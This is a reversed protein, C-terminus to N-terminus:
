RRRAWNPITMKGLKIEMKLQVMEPIGILLASQFAAMPTDKM